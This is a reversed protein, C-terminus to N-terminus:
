DNDLIELAGVKELQAFMARAQRELSANPLRCELNTVSTFGAQLQRLYSETDPCEDFTERRLQELIEVGSGEYDIEEIRIKM